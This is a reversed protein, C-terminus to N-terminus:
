RPAYCFTLFLCFFINSHINWELSSVQLTQGPVPHWWQLLDNQPFKKGGLYELFLQLWLLEEDTNFEWRHFCSHPLLWVLICFSAHFRLSVNFVCNWTREYCVINLKLCCKQPVIWMSGFSLAHHSCFQTNRSLTSFSSHTVHCGAHGRDEM